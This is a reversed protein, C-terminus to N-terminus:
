FSEIFTKIAHDQRERFDLISPQPRKEIGNEIIAFAVLGHKPHNLYGALGSVAVPESLTGTKARVLTALRLMDKDFRRELTGEEGGSALGNIFEPFFDFRKTAYVLVQVIQEASLRNEETLGSGNNLVFKSRIGVDEALFNRIVKLGGEMTGSKDQDSHAGLGKVLVDAIFNNSFHNLGSVVFGLDYGTIAHLYSDSGTKKGEKVNGKVFIGSQKLFSKLLLGNGQVPDGMSRYVKTLPAAESVNGAGVITTSNDSTRTVKISNPQRGKVTKINNSVSVGDLPYPYLSMFAGAQSRPGPAVAVAFTNFNVGFATIPADYARSSEREGGGRIGSRSEDDFLSNDIIIDGSIETIGMARLDAAFEWLKESVLFPDGSGVCILDGQIRNGSRRGRFYFETKFKHKSGLAKLLAASTVLKTVSAPNLLKQPEESYIAKQDSVRVFLVSHQHDNKLKYFLQQSWAPPSSLFLIIAFYLVPMRLVSIM